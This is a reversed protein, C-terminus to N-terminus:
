IFVNFSGQCYRKRLYGKKIVEDANSGSLIIRSFRGQIKSFDQQRDKTTEIMAKLEQQSTIVVWAQGRCYKGLDEVCTQLNLMLQTNDGIFQGVEDM